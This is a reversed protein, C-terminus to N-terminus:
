VELDGIEDANVGDASVVNGIHNGRATLDGKPVNRLLSAKLLPLNSAYKLAGYRHTDQRTRLRFDYRMGLDGLEERNRVNVGLDFEFALVGPRGGGLCTNFM